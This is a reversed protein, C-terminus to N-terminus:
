NRILHLPLSKKSSVSVMDKYLATATHQENTTWLYAKSLKQEGLYVMFSDMLKKGLGMGRYEPLLIFYRLQVSRDRHVGALFGIISDQHEQTWVRDKAADYNHAFEGLSELVYGEFNLGYGCEQQYVKGHLYTIYGLDGPLLNTRILIADPGINNAAGSQLISRLSVMDSVIRKKQLASLSGILRGTQEDSAKNLLELDKLGKNTLSLHVM